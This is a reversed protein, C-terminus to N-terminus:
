RGRGKIEIYDYNGSKIMKALRRKIQRTMVLRYLVKNKLSNECKRWRFSYRFGNSHENIHYIYKGYKQTLGWDVTNNIFAPHTSLRSTKSKKKVVKLEGLGYPMRFGLGTELIHDIMADYFMNCLEIYQKYTIHYESDVPKDKIYDDYMDHQTYCNQVKNKGRGFYAM